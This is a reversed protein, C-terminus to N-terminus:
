QGKIQRGGTKLLIASDQQRSMIEEKLDEIRRVMRLREGIEQLGLRGVFGNFKPAALAKTIGDAVM